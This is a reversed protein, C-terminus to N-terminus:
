AAPLPAVATAPAARPASATLLVLAVWLADALALHLIQTWAPAALLVALLGAALQAVTLAAVGAALRRLPGRTAALALRGAAVTLFLGVALSLLPHVVRLRVLFHTGPPLDGAVTEVWTGEQTVDVPFLTDGLATVAGAMSSVLVGAVAAMLLARWPGPAGGAPPRADGAWWAALAAAGLLCFTNVLHLAIVVARAVSDDQEVLGFLVLGAGLGAEAFTFAAATAAARRVRHRRPFVRIAWIALVASFLLVLGSTTRHVLEIVTKASPDTPVLTGHCTPWHSGCGAGSGSIRVWAGWVIVPVTLAVFSWAAARFRRRRSV